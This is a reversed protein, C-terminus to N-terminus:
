QKKFLSILRGKEVLRYNLLLATAILAWVEKSFHQPLWYSTLILSIISALFLLGIQGIIKNSIFYFVLAILYLPHMWMLNYNQYCATHKSFLSMYVMLSGGLTFSLLLVVDMVKALRQTTLSNWRSFFAYVVVIFLLIFFPTNGTTATETAFKLVNEKAVLRGTTAVQQHLLFPLFAAQYDSPKQDSYAGLLLDIGLGIWPLGQQYPASVVESRFSKISLSTPQFNSNKFLGDKIRTTCNDTIFNYLYFRNDGIMNVQLATYWKIKEATSLKLVQEYVNRKEYQYETLFDAYNNVSVFYLLDGKVFKAIFNPENFNFTGYNFVIDTNNVSDVVRVATHGWTTYIDSGAACTIISFQIRPKLANTDLAQAQVQVICIASLLFLFIYKKM